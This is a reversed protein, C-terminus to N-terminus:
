AAEMRLEGLRCASVNAPGLTDRALDALHEHHTFFLVQTEEALKALVRFGAASRADDYNIFLDDALFPLKVGSAVSEEVAALRLSLFLQDITGESMGSVPVVTAGDDRIGSLRPRGADVDVGLAAYRGLTLESFIASARKLLPAQKERRYREVTWRLLAAESRKRVYAEAQVEMEAKAQAVDAAAIAADPRDDAQKFDLSAAKRLEAIREIDASTARLQDQLRDSEATLESPDAGSAEVILTDLTLGDGLELVSRTLDDVETKLLTAREAREIVRPLEASGAVQAALLLPALAANALEIADRAENERAEAEQIQIRLGDAREALTAVTALRQEIMKLTEAPDHEDAPFGFDRALTQVQAAFARVDNGIDQIRQEYGLITGALGRLEDMLDLRARVLPLSSAVDLGIAGLGALWRSRWAELRRNAEDRRREARQRAAEAAEIRGELAFTQDRLERAAAELDGAAQVLSALSGDSLAEVTAAPLVSALQARASAVTQALRASEDRETREAEVLELTRQRGIRWAKLGDPTLPEGVVEIAATWANRAAGVAERASQRRRQAQELALDIRQLDQDLGVLAASTKAGDFRRDALEDAARLEDAFRAGSTVPSELEAAGSLHNALQRWTADRAQRADQLMGQSVAHEDRLLQSRRLDRHEREDSLHGLAQEAEALEHEAAFLTEALRYTEAESPIPLNALQEESGNWPTLAALAADLARRAKAHRGQAALALTELDGQARVTQLVATFAPTMATKPLRELQRRLDEALRSQEDLEAMAADRNSELGRHEELLDRLESLQPRGPLRAQADRAPAEPWGVEKLLRQLQADAAAAKTELGPTDRIAKDVAGQQARLQTVQARRNLLTPDYNLEGLFKEAAERQERALRLKTESEAIVRTARDLIARADAPLDPVEGLAALEELLHARRALPTLVRRRRETRQLATQVAERQARLEELEREHGELIKKLEAWHASKLQTERLRARAEEYAKQAVYYSRSASARESWIAKAEEELAEALRTVGVLGSGAAFIAQGIDDKAELMSRGGERLRAHDLSFARLFSERTQGALLASLRGDDIPQDAADLLTRANGRKRRCTLSPGSGQIVGGVRLLLKDFQFDYAAVHPFGFLLDAIAAMTTSKGAENPGYVVHLDSPTQPFALRCGDFQGYRILHLESFRM